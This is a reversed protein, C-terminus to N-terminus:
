RVYGDRHFLFLPALRPKRRLLTLAPRRPGPEPSWPTYLAALKPIKGEGPIVAQPPLAHLGSLVETLLIEPVRESALAKGLDALARELTKTFLDEPRDNM